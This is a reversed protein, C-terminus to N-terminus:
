LSLADLLYGLEHSTALGRDHNRKYSVTAVADLLQVLDGNDLCQCVQLCSPYIAHSMFLLVKEDSVYCVLDDGDRKGRTSIEPVCNFVNSGLSVTRSSGDHFLDFPLIDLM